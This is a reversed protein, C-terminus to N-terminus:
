RLARMWQERQAKYSPAACELGFLILPRRRGQGVQSDVAEKQTRVEELEDELAQCALVKADKGSLILV